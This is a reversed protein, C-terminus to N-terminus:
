SFGPFVDRCTEKEGVTMCYAVQFYGHAAQCLEPALREYARCLQLFAWPMNDSPSGWRKVELKPQATDEGPPCAIISYGLAEMGKIIMEVGTQPQNNTVLRSGLALYHKSLELRPTNPDKGRYTKELNDLLRRAKPIDTTDSTSMLHHLDQSLARRRQLATQSTAKSDMCLECGCTFGWNGLAKQTEQYSELPKPVRYEFLLETGAPLDRTARIIQMDGIFSRQCNSICSHNIRSALLWVGSTHFEPEKAGGTMSEQYSSRSTRPAGFSNLCIIKEVLFSDVVPAGDCESVGVTQYDGYHLDLFACSLAPNHYLKQVIQPLLCAQGGVTMKKTALNMLLNIRAGKEKDDIFSYAFAKECVLLEGASVAKTTFLGRGRGPSPRIEVPGSFNACDILPPTMRAQRYMESFSYKGNQQEDLRAKVRDMEPGVAKNDPYSEALLKLKGLCQGFVGLEYMARAERFLSKEAPARPDRGEFADSLANEPRGLKLNTLSRNLTALQEEELTEATQIAHTYLRLAAAWDQSQVADNGQTRIDKSTNDRIAVPKRWRSPILENDEDLWVIDGLHDVRLSYSGDAACKFFPEKLICIKGPGLIETKPVLSEDPQHYLQLLVATGREDEVIATIATIRDPSTLVRLMVKKGRHHTELRMDSIMIPELDRASIVCPPYPAPVQTTYLINKDPGSRLSASLLNMTFSTVLQQQTPHDRVMEGKRRSAKEAANQIRKLSSIFQHDDSVDKTNM